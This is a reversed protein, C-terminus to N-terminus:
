DMMAGLDAFFGAAEPVGPAPDPHFEVSMAQRARHRLGAIAGGNLSTFAVEMDAGPDDVVYGSNMTTIIAVDRRRDKVPHNPGHVGVALRKTRGGCALALLHHGLGVGFVPKKSLLARIADPAYAVGEPDGPGGALVIGDPSLALAADPPTKPPVVTIAVGAHRLRRLFNRRLGFDYVVVRKDIPPDDAAQDTWEYPAACGAATALDHGDLGDWQRARQIGEEPPVAGSPCCFAKQRGKERLLLVIDRTPCGALAPVGFRTLADALSGQSRWSSPENVNLAVMGAAFFAPSEMAEENVGVNGIEPATFCFITGASAPDSLVEQYGTSGTTFALEGVADRNAGTSFGHFVSGDALAIYGKKERALRLRDPSM